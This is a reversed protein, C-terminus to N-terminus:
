IKCKTIAKKALRYLESQQFDPSEILELKTAILRSILPFASHKLHWTRLLNFLDKLTNQSKYEFYLKIDESETLKIFLTAENLFKELLAKEIHPNHFIELEERRFPEDFFELERIIEIVDADHIISKEISKYSSSDKNLISLQYKRAIKPSLKLRKLLFHYLWNGSENEWFDEGDNRRSIDHAAASLFTIWKREHFYKLSPTTSYIKDILYSWLLTRSAHLVGHSFRAPIKRQIYLKLYESYKNNKLSYVPDKIIIKKGSSPDTYSPFREYPIKYYPLIENEVTTFLDLLQNRRDVQRIKEATKEHNISFMQEIIRFSEDRLAKNYKILHNKGNLPSLTNICIECTSLDRIRLIENEPTEIKQFEFSTGNGIRTHPHFWEGDSLMSTFSMLPPIFFHSSEALVQKPIIQCVFTYDNSRPVSHRAACAYGSFFIGGFLTSGFSLPYSKLKNPISPFNSNKNYEFPLFLHPQLELNPGAALYEIHGGRYLTAHNLKRAQVEAEVSLQTVGKKGNKTQRKELDFFEIVALIDQQIEEIILPDRHKTFVFPFEKKEWSSFDTPIKDFIAAYVKDINLFDPDEWDFNPYLWFIFDLFKENIYIANQIVSKKANRKSYFELLEKTRYESNQFLSLVEEDLDPKFDLDDSSYQCCTSQQNNLTALGNVLRSTVPDNFYMYVIFIELLSTPVYVLDLKKTIKHLKANMFSDVQSTDQGHLIKLCSSNKDLSLSCPWDYKVIVERYARYILTPDIAESIQNQQGVQGRLIYAGEAQVCCLLLGFAYLYINKM